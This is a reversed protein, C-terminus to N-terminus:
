RDEKAWLDVGVAQKIKDRLDTEETRGIPIVVPKVSAVIDARLAPHLGPVVESPIVLIGVDEEDMAKEIAAEWDGGEDVDHIHHIGVLRFGLCFHEDGVVSLEM